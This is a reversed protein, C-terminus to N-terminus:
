SKILYIGAGDNAYNNYININNLAINTSNYIYIGGGFEVGQEKNNRIELNELRVNECNSITIIHKYIKNGDIISLDSRNRYYSDWGGVIRINDNSIIISDVNNDLGNGPTYTGKTMYITTIGKEKAKRIATQITRVPFQITLGNNNDSGTTSVYIISPLNLYINTIESMSGQQLSNIAFIRYYYTISGQILNKDIYNTAENGYTNAYLKMNTSGNTSRYISYMVAGPIKSWNLVITDNTYVLTINSIKALAKATVSYPGSKSSEKKVITNIASVYYSYTKGGIVNVDNYYVTTVFNTVQKGNKDIRYVNYGNANSVMNWTLSIPGNDNAKINIGTPQSPAPPIVLINTLYNGRKDQIIKMVTGANTEIIKPPSGFNWQKSWLEWEKSWLTGLEIEWELEWDGIEEGIRLM